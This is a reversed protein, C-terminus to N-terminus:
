ICKKVGPYLSTGEKERKQPFKPCDKGNKELKTKKCKVIYFL